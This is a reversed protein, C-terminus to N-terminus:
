VKVGVMSMDLTIVDSVEGMIEDVLGYAKAELANM